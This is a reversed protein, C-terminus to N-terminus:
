GRVAARRRGRARRAPRAAAPPVEPARALPPHLEGAVALALRLGAPDVATVTHTVQRFPVQQIM